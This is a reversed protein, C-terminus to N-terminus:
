EHEWYVVRRDKQCIFRVGGDQSVVVVVSGPLAGALRYASQHRAGVNGTEEEAVKDGEPDLAKAVRKVAPLRGSIMGGFGLLEHNKSLVVAGDAAALEAILYAMEFLGEDLAAIEADTTSEFERWGVAAQGHQGSVGYLRALSNLMDVILDPCCFRPPGAAFRYGLAIYDQLPEAADELPLFIITGGHRADRVLSLVRKLMREAIRRPLSPELPAWTEGLLKSAHSRSAEHRKLIADGFGLFQEPLWKSEYLNARSGSLRGGQLKGILEYGRYVEISGPAEIHVVLALPLPAGARRGGRVDRLWRTGSQILGWIQLSGGDSRVAILTRQPDAAVSLRRVESPDFLFSCSFDLRQLGDPPRGEPAFREPPALIARFTVPRQEERLMSAQFCVSFFHELTLVDPLRDLGRPGELVAWRDRVFHALDPPYACVSGPHGFGSLAIGEDLMNAM